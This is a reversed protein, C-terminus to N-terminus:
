CAQKDAKQADNVSQIQWWVEREEILAKEGDTCGGAPLTTEQRRVTASNLNEDKLTEYRERRNAHDWGQGDGGESEPQALRWIDKRKEQLWTRANMKRQNQTDSFGAWDSISRLNAYADWYAQEGETLLDYHTSM